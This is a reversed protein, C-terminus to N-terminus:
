LRIRRIGIDLRRLRERAPSRRVRILDLGADAAILEVVEGPSRDDTPVHRAYREAALADVCREIQQM